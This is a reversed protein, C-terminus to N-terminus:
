VTKLPPKIIDNFEKRFNITVLLPACTFDALANIPTTTSPRVSPGQHQTISFRWVGFTDYYIANRTTLQLPRKYKFRLVTFRYMTAM